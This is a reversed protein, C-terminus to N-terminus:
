QCFMEHLCFTYAKLTRLAGFLIKEMNESIEVFEKHFFVNKAFTKSFIIDDHQLIERINHICGLIKSRYESITPLKNRPFYYPIKIYLSEQKNNTM